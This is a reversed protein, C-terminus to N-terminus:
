VDTKEREIVSDLKALELVIGDPNQKVDLELDIKTRWGFLLKLRDWLSGPKYFFELSVQHMM